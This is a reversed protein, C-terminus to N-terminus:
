YSLYITKLETYEELGFRSKERGLGSEKMGGFPAQPYAQHIRNIWISGAEIEGAWELAGAVDNTFLYAALGFPTANAEEVAKGIDHFRCAIVVPGFIEEKMLATRPEVQSLVTPPYFHGKEYLRTNNGGTELRAGGRLATDVQLRVRALVDANNMPGMEVGPDAPNGIKLDRVQRVFEDLFADYIEGAVYIRSVRYCYQGCNKLSQSVLQPVIEPWPADACVIAPCHGGLELIVKRVWRASVEQIEKGVQTSGTFTVLRPVPHATLLRGTEHGSGTLVNFAGPPVGASSALRALMLTSLPTHEDPKAVVTCGAALAPAAKCALTSLPYNFPTIAIVVGAPERVVLVKERHYGLLPIQGSLRLCEEAFYDFLHATSSVEERAAQLPKGVERCVLSALSESESRVRDALDHLIQSRRPAPISRWGRFARQAGDVAENVLGSEAASVYAFVEETAPDILPHCGVGKREEGQIWCGHFVPM